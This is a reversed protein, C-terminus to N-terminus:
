GDDPEKGLNLDRLPKPRKPVKMPKEETKDGLRIKAIQDLVREFKSEVEELRLELGAM